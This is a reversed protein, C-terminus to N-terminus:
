FVPMGDNSGHHEALLTCAARQRLKDPWRSLRVGANPVGIIGVDAVLKLELDLWMEVGAEGDEAIVPARNRATRFAANGRGGRGGQVVLAKDGVGDTRMFSVVNCDLKAQLRCCRSCFMPSTVVLLCIRSCRQLPRWLSPTSCAGHYLLEAIAPAQPAAEEDDDGNHFDDPRQRVITGPPVKIVMDKANAGHQNKGQGRVGHDAKWHVHYRLKSLSNQNEDAQVWISGGHGGNGGAPGGDPKFKERLFACCGNGGNGSRVNISATDFYALEPPPKKQSPMDDDEFDDEDSSEDIITYDYEIADPFRRIGKGLNQVGGKPQAPAAKRKADATQWGQQMEQVMDQLGAAAEPTWAQDPAANEQITRKLDLLSTQAKKRARATV